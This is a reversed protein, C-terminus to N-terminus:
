GRHKRRRKKLAAKQKDARELISDTSSNGPAQGEIFTALDIITPFQFLRPISINTGMKTKIERHIKLMHISNGGLDFFNDRIGLENLGLVKKWADVLQKEVESKPAVFEQTIQPRDSEPVPLLKRDVKGSITLPFEDLIVFLAPIMHLPLKSKLHDRFEKVSPQSTLNQHLSLYAVLNQIGPEDERVLVVVQKISEHTELALEIEGLEIRMGRLKVQHDIRGHYEFAGDERRSGLDGTKYIRANKDKNYPDSIFCQKTLQERNLYGKAVQVGGIYLEGVQGQPVPRLYKDLVYLYTNAVEHGIPVIVTSNERTCQWYTVDVAAETPGYLNHLSASMKSFFRQCIDPMLAEGSCIVNRVSRCRSDLREEDLFLRLMSPVFHLMTINEREIVDALYAGDKHGDPKTLVLTAGSILPLFFEWVSVDFSYPTKQLIIDAEGVQYEERMWILRNVIGRHSNMVGKPRGTSGSTYLVYALDDPSVAVRPNSSVVPSNLDDVSIIKANCFQLKEKLQSQTLVIKANADSITFDLRDHPYDPDLPVYAGGAKVIALLSVMLEISRECCVGILDGTVVGHDILVQALGNVKQNFESFSLSEEEFRLATKDSFEDVVSEFLTTITSNGEAYVQKSKDITATTLDGVQELSLYDVQCAKREFQAPFNILLQIYNALLEKIKEQGYKKRDFELRISFEEGGYAIVALPFNTQGRYQFERQQWVGGLEQMRHNLTNNDFVFLTEFMLENKIKASRRIEQLPTFEFERLLIHKDRVQQLLERLSLQDDVDVRFPITNILLGLIDESGELGGHRCARTSGFVIENERTYHHLILGWATQLLTNETFGFEQAFAKLQKTDQASINLEEFGYRTDHQADNAIELNLKSGLDVGQLEKSWFELEKNKDRGELWHIYDSFPTREPFSLDLNNELSEYASFLENLLLPFSRGDLLIHHFTWICYFTNNPALIFTLRMLPAKALNFDILRDQELFENLKDSFEREDCLSWDLENKPIRVQSQIRQQHEEQSEWNFATRLIDRHEILSEWARLFIDKNLQHSIKISIQEIDVGEGGQSLQHFLMGEQLPTLGFHETTGADIM